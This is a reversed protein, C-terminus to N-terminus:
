KMYQQIIHDIKERTLPGVYEHGVQAMPAIECAGLCEVEKLTFRGDATTEGPKIGLKESIYAVMEKAGMLSCSLTRCVNIECKARPKSHFLTYFTMVERVDAPPIQFYQAVQEEVHPPIFSYQEQILRLVPLLGARKVPYNACISDAQHRLTEFSIDKANSM